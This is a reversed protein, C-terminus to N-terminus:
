KKTLYKKESKEMNRFFAENFTDGVKDSILYALCEMVTNIGYMFHENGNRADYKGIFLGCKCLNMFVKALVLKELRSLKKM